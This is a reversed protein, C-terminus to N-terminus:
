EPNVILLIDVKLTLTIVSLLRNLIMWFAYPGYDFTIGHISMNDTNMVGHNFGFAQWKAILKATDTAIKQLM